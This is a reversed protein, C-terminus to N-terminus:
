RSGRRHGETEAEAAEKLNNLARTWFEDWDSDTIPWPEGVRREVRVSRAAAHTLGRFAVGLDTPAGRGAGNTDSEAGDM